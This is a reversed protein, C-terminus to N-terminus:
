RDERHGRIDQGLILLSREIDPHVSVDRLGDDGRKHKLRENLMYGMARVKILLWSYIQEYPAGGRIVQREGRRLANLGEILMSMIGHDEGMSEGAAIEASPKHIDVTVSAQEALQKFVEVSIMLTIM